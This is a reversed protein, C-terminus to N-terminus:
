GADDEGADEENGKGGTAADHSGAASADPVDFLTDHIKSRDVSVISSCASSGFALLLTTVILTHKM